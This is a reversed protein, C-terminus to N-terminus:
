FILINPTGNPISSSILPKTGSAAACLDSATTTRPFDAAPMLFIWGMTTKGHRFIWVSNPIMKLMFNTCLSKSFPATNFFVLNLEPDNILVDNGGVNNMVEDKSYAGVNKVMEMVDASARYRPAYVYTQRGSSAVMGKKDLERVISDFGQAGPTDEFRYDEASILLLASGDAYKVAEVNTNNADVKRTQVIARIYSRLEYPDVNKIAYAKTIVNPDANDRVFHVVQTNEKVAVNLRADIRTNAYPAAPEGGCLLLGGLFAASFAIKYQINM